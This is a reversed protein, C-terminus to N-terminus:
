VNGESLRGPRVIDTASHASKLPCNNIWPSRFLLPPNRSFPTLITFLVLRVSLSTCSTFITHIEPDLLSHMVKTKDKSLCARCYHVLDSLSEELNM